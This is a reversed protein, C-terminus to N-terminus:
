SRLKINLVDIDEKKVYVTTVDYGGLDVRKNVQNINNDVLLQKFLKAAIKFRKVVETQRYYDSRKFAGENM